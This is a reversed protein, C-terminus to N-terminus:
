LPGHTVPKSSLNTSHPTAPGVPLNYIKPGKRCLFWPVRAKSEREKKSKSHWSTSLKNQVHEEFSSRMRLGLGEPWPLLGTLSEGETLHIIESM